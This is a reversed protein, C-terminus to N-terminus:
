LNAVKAANKHKDKQQMKDIRESLTIYKSHNKSIKNYAENIPTESPVNHPKDTKQYEKKFYKLFGRRSKVNCYLALCAITESDVMNRKGCKNTDYFTDFTHIVNRITHVFDVKLGFLKIEEDTLDNRGTQNRLEENSCELKKCIGKCVAWQYKRLVNSKIVHFMATVFQDFNPYSLRAQLVPNNTANFMPISADSGIVNYWEEVEACFKNFLEKTRYCSLRIRNEERLIEVCYFFEEILLKYFSRISGVLAQAEPIMTEAGFLLPSMTTTSSLYSANWIKPSIGHSVYPYSHQHRYPSFRQMLTKNTSMGIRIKRLVGAFRNFYTNDETTYKTNYDDGFKHLNVGEKKMKLKQEEVYVTLAEIEHPKMDTSVLAYEIRQRHDSTIAQLIDELGKMTYTITTQLKM